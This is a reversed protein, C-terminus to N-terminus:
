VHPCEKTGTVALLNISAKYVVDLGSDAFIKIDNTVLRRRREYPLYWMIGVARM